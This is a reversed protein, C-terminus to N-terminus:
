TLGGGAPAYVQRLVGTASLAASGLASVSAGLDQVEPLVSRAAIGLGQLGQNLTSTIQEQGTLAAEPLTPANTLKQYEITMAGPKMPLLASAQSEPIGWMSETPIRGHRRCGYASIRPM